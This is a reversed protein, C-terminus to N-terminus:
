EAPPYVEVEDFSLWSRGSAGVLVFRATVPTAPELLLADGSNRFDGAMRSWLRGDLSTGVVLPRRNCAEEQRSEFLVISGIRRPAGLDVRWTPSEELETQFGSFPATDGDTGKSAAFAFSKHKEKFTSSMTARRGFALNPRSGPLAPGSWAYATMMNEGAYLSRAYLAFLGAAAVVAAALAAAGAWARVRRVLFAVSLVLGLCSIAVGAMSGPSRCRFEVRSRGSPLPVAHSGGNARLPWVAAGNVFSMWRGSYPFSLGFFGRETSEVEFVLRNYSSYVLQVTARGNAAGAAGAPPAWGGDDSEVVMEDPAIGEEIIRYADDENRALKAKFYVKGLFPELHFMTAQRWAVPSYTREGSGFRYDLKERKWERMEALTPTKLVPDQWTGHDLVVKTQLCVAVCLLGEVIAAHNRLRNRSALLGLIALGLGLGSAEVWAPVQRFTVPSYLSPTWGRAMLLVGYLCLTGVGLLCLATSPELHKTLGAAPGPAEKRGFLWALLLLILIPLLMAMRGAVRVASAFPLYNWVAHYVPTRDGQICLFVLAALAWTAWAVLPIRVGFLRLLPLLSALLIVTSGGFAGHVDSRLPDLFNSLTGILSDGLDSAWAFDHAGVRANTALFDTFFPALYAASLLLGLACCTAVDLWFRALNSRHGAMEPHLAGDVYPLLVACLGAGIAGYYTMQPHGSTVLWYTSAIIAGRTRVRSPRLYHLGIAACLFLHGTWSEMSSGYRFLDLMRTNYVTVTSLLFAIGRRLGLHRLLLCVALHVLGLSLLRFWSNWEVAHGSWYGPLHSVLSIPHYLQGQTLAAASQGGAFGPVYLPFSGTKLAYQLEIQQPIAYFQYDNGMTTHSVFPIMWSFFFFPLLLILVVLLAEVRKAARAAILSEKSEAWGAM